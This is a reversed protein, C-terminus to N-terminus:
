NNMNTEVPNVGNTPAEEFVNKSTIQKLDLGSGRHRRGKRKAKKAQKSINTLSRKKHKVKKAFATTSFILSLILLGILYKMMGIIKSFSCAM